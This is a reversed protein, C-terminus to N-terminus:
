RFSWAGRACCASIPSRSPPVNPVLVAVKDGPQLGGALLDGAFRAAAEDLESYRYRVDDHIVALRQPHCLASNRLLSALNLSM